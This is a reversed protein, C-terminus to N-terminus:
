ENSTPKVLQTSCYNDNSKVEDPLEVSRWPAQKDDAVNNTEYAGIEKGDCKSTDFPTHGSNFLKSIDATSIPTPRQASMEALPISDM